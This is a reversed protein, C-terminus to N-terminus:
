CYCRCTHDSWQNQEQPEQVGASREDAAAVAVYAEEQQGGVERAGTREESEVHVGLSLASDACASSLTATAWTTATSTACPM